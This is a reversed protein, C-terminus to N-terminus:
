GPNPNKYGHAEFFDLVYWIFPSVFSLVQFSRLLLQDRSGEHSVLASVRLIFATLLLLDTVLGVVHWFGFARWTAFRLVKSIQIKYLCWHGLLVSFTPFLCQASRNIMLSFAVVSLLEISTSEFLFTLAMFYLATEWFDLHSLLPDLRDLPERVIRVIQSLRRTCSILILIM